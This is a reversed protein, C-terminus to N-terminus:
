WVPTPTAGGAPVGTGDPRPSGACSPSAGRWPATPWCPKSRPTTARRWARRRDRHRRPDGSRDRRERRSRRGCARGAHHRPLRLAAPRDDLPAARSRPPGRPRHHPRAALDRRPRARRPRRPCARDRAGRACRRHAAHARRRRRRGGPSRGARPEGAPRRHEDREARRAGATRSRRAADRSAHAARVHVRHGGAGPHRGHEVGAGRDRRRAGRACRRQRVPEHLQPQRAERHARRARGGGARRRDLHQLDHADRGRYRLYRRPHGAVARRAGDDGRAARARRRRSRRRDRRERAAGHALSRGTRAHGTRGDCARLRRHM